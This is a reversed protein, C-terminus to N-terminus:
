QMSASSATNVSPASHTIGTGGSSSCGPVNLVM